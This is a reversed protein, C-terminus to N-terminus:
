NALVWKGTAQKCLSYSGAAAMAVTLLASAMLWRTRMRVRMCPRPMARM